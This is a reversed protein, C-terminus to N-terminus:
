CVHHEHHNMRRILERLLVDAVEPSERVLATFEWSVLLLCETAELARVSANRPANDILAAEGFFSSSGIEMVLDCRGDEEREVAVRGSLIIYLASAPDGQRIILEGARYSRQTGHAALRAITRPDLGALLPVGGLRTELAM